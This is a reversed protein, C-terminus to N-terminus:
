CTLSATDQNESKPTLLKPVLLEPTMDAHIVGFTQCWHYVKGLIHNKNLLLAYTQKSRLYFYDPIEEYHLIDILLRTCLNERKHQKSLGFFAAYGSTAQEAYKNLYMKLMPVMKQTFCIPPVNGSLHQYGHIMTDLKELCFDMPNNLEESVAFIFGVKESSQVHEIFDNFIEEPGTLAIDYFYFFNETTIEIFSAFSIGLETISLRGLESDKILTEDSPSEKTLISLVARLLVPICHKDIPAAQGFGFQQNLEQSLSLFNNQKGNIEIHSSCLLMRLQTENSQNFDFDSDRLFILLRIFEEISPTLSKGYGGTNPFVKNIYTPAGCELLLIKNVAPNDFNLMILPWAYQSRLVCESLASALGDIVIGIDPQEAPNKLMNSTVEEIPALITIDHVRNDYAKHIAEWADDFVKKQIESLRSFPDFTFKARDQEKTLDQNLARIKEYAEDFPQPQSPLTPLLIQLITYSLAFIDASLGTTKNNFIQEAPIHLGFGFPINKSASDKIPIASGFDILRAAYNADVLINGPHLDLHIHHKKDHLEQVAVTCALALYLRKWLLSRESIEEIHWWLDRSNQFVKPMLLFKPVKPLNEPLSEDHRPTDNVKRVRYKVAVSAASEKGYITQSRLIENEANKIRSLEPPHSFVAVSGHDCEVGQYKFEKIVYPSSKQEFCDELATADYVAGYTGSGLKVKAIYRTEKDNLNFKICNQHKLSYM